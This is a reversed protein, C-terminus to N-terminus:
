CVNLFVSRNSIEPKVSYRFTGKEGLLLKLEWRANPTKQNANLLGDIVQSEDIQVSKLSAHDEALECADSYCNASKNRVALNSALNISLCIGAESQELEFETGMLNNSYNGDSYTVSVGATTKRLSRKM